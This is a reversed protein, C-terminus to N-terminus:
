RAHTAEAGLAIRGESFRVFVDLLVSAPYAGGLAAVAQGHDVFLLTPISHIGYRLALEPQADIDVKVIKLGRPLAPALEQLAEGLAICPACWSAFFDVVVPAGTNLVEDDFTASSVQLFEVSPPQSM